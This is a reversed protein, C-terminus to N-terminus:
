VKFIVHVDRQRGSRGKEVQNMGQRSSTMHANKMGLGDKFMVEPLGTKGREDFVKDITTGDALLIFDVSMRGGGNNGIVEAVIVGKLCSETLRMVSRGGELPWSEITTITSWLSVFPTIRVGQELVMSVTPIACIKRSLTKLHKPRCSVRM